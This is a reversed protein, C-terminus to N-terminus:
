NTALVVDVDHSALMQAVDPPPAAETVLVDFLAPEAVVIPARRAFKASDAAVVRIQAQDLIARTLEAEQMNHLMFGDKADIAGVSLVAYRVSFRRVFSVAEVGFAGADHGRLEGGAMFVRNNNRAALNNAVGVSNTVVFLDRHRRLALAIFATTSGIDLFLSDGDRIMEAVKAAIRRKAGPNDDMRQRFPQEIQNEDLHVGGHVKRLKGDAELSKVNRRITEESVGLRGALFQIRAAGGAIKVEHLIEQARFTGRSSARSGTQSRTQLRSSSNATPSADAIVPPDANAM